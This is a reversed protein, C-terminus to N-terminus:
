FSRQLQPFLKLLDANITFQYGPGGIKPLGPVEQMLWSGPQGPQTGPLLLPYPSLDKFTKGEAKLGGGFFDLGFKGGTLSFGKGASDYASELGFTAGSLPLHPYKKRLLALYDSATFDASFGYASKGPEPLTYKFGEIPSYPIWGLPKGINVGSLAARLRPDLSFAAAATGLNLGLYTLMAAKDGPSAEDRYTYKLHELKPEYWDKFPKHEALKEGTTKLGATLPDKKEEEQPNEQRQVMPGHFFAVDAAARRVAPRFFPSLRCPMANCVKRKLTRM